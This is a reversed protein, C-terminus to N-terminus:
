GKRGRIIGWLQSSLSYTTYAAMACVLYVVWRPGASTSWLYTAILVYVCLAITNGIVSSM